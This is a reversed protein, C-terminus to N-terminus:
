RDGSPSARRGLRLATRERPAEEKSANGSSRRSAGRGSVSVFRHFLISFCSLRIAQAHMGGLPKGARAPHELEGLLHALQARLRRRLGAPM